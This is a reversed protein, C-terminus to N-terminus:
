ANASSRTRLRYIRSRRPRAAQEVVDSLVVPAEGIREVSLVPLPDTFGKAKLSYLYRFEFRPSAEVGIRLSKGAHDPPLRFVGKHKDDVVSKTDSSDSAIETVTWESPLARVIADLTAQTVLIESGRAVSCLRSALNVAAGMVTYDQRMSSGINGLVMEGTNIGIGCPPM